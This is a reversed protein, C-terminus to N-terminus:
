SGRSDPSGTVATSSRRELPVLLEMQAAEPSVAVLRDARSDAPKVLRLERLVGVAHEAYRPPVGLEEAIRLPDFEGKGLAHEYFAVAFEALEAAGQAGQQQGQAVFHM